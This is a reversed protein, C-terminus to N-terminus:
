KSAMKRVFDLSLDVDNIDVNEFGFTKNHLRAIYILMQKSPSVDRNQRVQTIAEYATMHKKQMLYCIVITASRSMGAWCSVLVHSGDKKSLQELADSVDLISREFTLNVESGILDSMAFGQYSIGLDKEYKVKDVTFCGVIKKGDEDAGAEAVNLIDTINNAKLWELNQFYIKLLFYFFFGGSYTSYM